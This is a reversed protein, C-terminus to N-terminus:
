EIPITNNHNVVYQLSFSTFFAYVYIGVCVRVRNGNQFENLIKIIYFHTIRFVCVCYHREKPFFLFLCKLMIFIWLSCCNLIFFLSSHNEFLKDLKKGLSIEPISPYKQLVQQQLSSKAYVGYLFSTFM